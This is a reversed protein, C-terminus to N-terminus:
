KPWYHRFPRFPHNPYDHYEVNLEVSMSPNFNYRVAAGIRDGLDGIHYLPMPMKSMTLSKQGYLYAEWHEDFMYGVVANIGADHFGRHLWNVHNYYGGVAISLKSTLPMAYMAAVNQAFGAGHHAHRGFEAFVSSGLSLNLGQHLNWDMLGWGMMPYLGIRQRQGLMNLPPLHLSDDMVGLYVEGDDDDDIQQDFPLSRDFDAVPESAKETYPQATEGIVTPREQAQLASCVSFALIYIWKRM